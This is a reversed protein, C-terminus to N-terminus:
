LSREALEAIFEDASRAVQGAGEAIESDAEAEGEQWASTWFWAQDDPIVSAPALVIRGDEITVLLHDGEQLDLEERMAEPITVIGKRRVAITTLRPRHRRRPEIDVM